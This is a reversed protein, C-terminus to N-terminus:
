SFSVLFFVSISIKIFSGLLIHFLKHLTLYFVSFDIFYSNNHQVYGAWSFFTIPDKQTNHQAHGAWYFVFARQGFSIQPDNSRVDLIVFFITEHM